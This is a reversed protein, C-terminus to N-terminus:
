RTGEHSSTLGRANQSPTFLYKLTNSRTGHKILCHILLMNKKSPHYLPNSFTKNSKNVRTLRTKENDKQRVHKTRVSCVLPGVLRGYGAGDSQFDAHLHFSFLVHNRRVALVGTQMLHAICRSQFCRPPLNTTPQLSPKQQTQSSTTQLFVTLSDDRGATTSKLRSGNMDRLPCKKTGSTCECSELQKSPGNRSTDIHLFCLRLVKYNKRNM